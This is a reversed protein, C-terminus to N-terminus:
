LSHKETETMGPFCKSIPFERPLYSLLLASSGFGPLALISPMRRSFRAMLWDQPILLYPHSVHLSFFHRQAWVKSFPRTNGASPNSLSNRNFLSQQIQKSFATVLLLVVQQPPHLFAESCCFESITKDCRVKLAIKITEWNIKWVVEDQM